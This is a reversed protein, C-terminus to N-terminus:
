PVCAGFVTTLYALPRGAPYLRQCQLGANCSPQALDCLARCRLGDALGICVSGSRCIQSPPTSPGPGDVCAAGPAASGARRDNSVCFHRAGGALFTAGLTEQMSRCRFDDSPCGQGSLPSCATTCTGVAGPETGIRQCIAGPLCVEDTTCYESCVGHTGGGISACGQGVPCTHADRPGLSTLAEVECAGNRRTGAVRCVPQAEGAVSGAVLYCGQGTVCGEQPAASCSSPAADCFGGAICSAQECDTQQNNDDDLGNRCAAEGVECVGSAICSPDACDVLGDGDDDLNNRCGRATDEVLLADSCRASLLCLALALGLPRRTVMAAGGRM